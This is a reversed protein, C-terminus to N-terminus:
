DWDSSKSLHNHVAMGPCNMGPDICSTMCGGSQEKVRRGAKAACLDVPKGGDEMKAGTDMKRGGKERDAQLGGCRWWSM